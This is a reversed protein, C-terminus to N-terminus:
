LYKSLLEDVKKKYEPTQKFKEQKEKMQQEEQRIKYLRGEQEKNFQEVIESRKWGYKKLLDGLIYFKRKPDATYSLLAKPCVDFVINELEKPCGEYLELRSLAEQGRFFRKPVMRSITRKFFKSPERFHFQGKLPNVIRRKNLYAEFKGVGRHVPGTYVLKECHVVTVKDGELLAKAIHTALKGGVHKDANIYLHNM